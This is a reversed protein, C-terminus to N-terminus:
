NELSNNINIAIKASSPFLLAELFTRNSEQNDLEPMKILRSTIIDDLKDTLINRGSAIDWVSYQISIFFDATKSGFWKKKTEFINEYNVVNGTVAYKLGLKRAAEIAEAGNPPILFHLHNRNIDIRLRNRDRIKIKKSKTLIESLIDATLIGLNSEPNGHLDNFDFVGLDNGTYPKAKTSEKITQANGIASNTFNPYLFFLFISILIINLCRIHNKNQLETIIGKLIFM